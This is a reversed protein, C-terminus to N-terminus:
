ESLVQVVKQSAVGGLQASFTKRAKLVFWVLFVAHGWLSSRSCLCLRLAPIAALPPLFFSMFQKSSM